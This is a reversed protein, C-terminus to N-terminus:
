ERLPQLEINAAGRVLRAWAWIWITADLAVSPDPAHASVAHAHQHDEINWWVDGPREM